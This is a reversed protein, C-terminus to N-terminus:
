PLIRAAWTLLHTCMARTWLLTASTRTSSIESILAVAGLPWISNQPTLPCPEYDTKLFEIAMASIPELEEREEAPLKVASPETTVAM